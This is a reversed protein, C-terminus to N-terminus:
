SSRGAIERLYRGLARLDAPRKPTLRRLAAVIGPLRRGPTELEGQLIWAIVRDDLPGVGHRARTTANDRRIIDLAEWADRRDTTMQGAWMRYRVLPEDILIPDIAAMLRIWCEWDAFYKMQPNWGGVSRLLETDVLISSPGAPVPNHTLMRRRLDGSEQLKVMRTLPWDCLEANDSDVRTAGVLCWGPEDGLAAVQTVLKNSLWHDDDDCFAVLSSEVHALGAARAAGEGTRGATDIVVARDRINAPADQGSDNVVM